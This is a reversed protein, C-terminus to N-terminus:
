RYDKAPALYRGKEARKIPYVRVSHLVTTHDSRHVARAIEPLSLRTRRYAWYCIAQRCRVISRNRSQSEIEAKSIRYVKCMRRTIEEVSIAARGSRMRALAANASRMSDSASRIADEHCQRRYLRERELRARAEEERMKRLEIMNIVRTDDQRFKPRANAMTQSYAYLKM